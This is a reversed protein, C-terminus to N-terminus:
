DEISNPVSRPDDDAVEETTESNPQQTLCQGSPRDWRRCNFWARDVGNWRSLTYVFEVAENERETLPMNGAALEPNSWGYIKCFDFENCYRRSIQLLEDPDARPDFTMAFISNGSILEIDGDPDVYQTEAEGSRPEPPDVIAGVLAIGFFGILGWQWWKLKKM